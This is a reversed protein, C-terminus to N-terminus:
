AEELAAPGRAQERGPAYEPLEVRIEAGGGNHNRASIVGGLSEVINKAIALGLGTGTRKTTYYPDFVHPLDAEPIGLGRDTVAIAVRQEACRSTRVEVGAEGGHGAAAPPVAQPAAACRALVAERANTVVNVLATRLLDGDTMVAPLDPDLLLGLGPGGDGAMAASAAERCTANLDTLAWDVRVPRAFDLVDSVIRDLRSVEHDIDVIAEGADQPLGDQRRLARLSTKIIM